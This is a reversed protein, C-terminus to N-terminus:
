IGMMDHNEEVDGNIDCRPKAISQYNIYVMIPKM